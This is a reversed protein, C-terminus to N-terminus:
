ELAKAEESLQVMKDHAWKVAEATDTNDVIIKQMMDAIVFAGNIETLALNTAGYKNGTAYGDWNVGAGVEYFNNLIKMHESGPSDDFDKLPLLEKRVYGSQLLEMGTETPPVFFGPEQCVTLVYINEPEMMYMLLKKVAEYREPDKAATTVNLAHNAIFKSSTDATLHDPYPIPATAVDYIGEEFFAPLNPCIYPIMALNGAAFNMEMEGYSWSTASPSAYQYLQKLYNATDITIQNDLVVEGNEDFYDYNQSILFTAFTDNTCTNRGAPLGIGYIGEDAFTCKEAYELLESWTEPPRDYGAKELISPRYMLSITSSNIPLGWQHGDYYYSKLSDPNLGEKENIEEVIDDIPIISGALYSTSWQADSVAHIDPLTGSHTASLLKQMADDWLVAEQTVKINPNEAMFGDIVYQWAKIRHAPTEHHWIVLEIADGSATQAGSADPENSAAQQGGCATLSVLMASIVLMAMLKNLIRKHKGM